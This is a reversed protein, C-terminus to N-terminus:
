LLSALGGNAAFQVDEEQVAEEMPQGQMAEQYVVLLQQDDLEELPLQFIEMSLAELQERSPQEQGEVVTEQFEEGGQPGEIFDTEQEVLEGNLYGARGGYKFHHGGAIQGTEGRGRARGRDPAGAGSGQNNQGPGDKTHPGYNLTSTDFTSFAGSGTDGGRTGKYDKRQDAELTKIAHLISKIKGKKITSYTTEDDDLGRVEQLRDRLQQLPDNTGFASMSAQGTLPGSTYRGIDDVGWGLGGQDIGGTALDLQSRLMPNFNGSRPNTADFGGAIKGLFTNDLIGTIGSKLRKFLGKKRPQQSTEDFEMEEFGEHPFAQGPQYRPAWNKMQNMQNRWDAVPDTHINGANPAYMGSTDRSFFKQPHHLEPDVYSLDSFAEDQLQNNYNLDQVGIRNNDWFLAM